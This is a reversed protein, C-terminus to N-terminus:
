GNDVKMAATWVLKFKAEDVGLKSEYRFLNLDLM